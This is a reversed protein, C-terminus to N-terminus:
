EAPAPRKRRSSDYKQPNKAQPLLSTTLKNRQRPDSVSAQITSKRTKAQSLLSTTLKNRQRPDSLSAQITSKTTKAQPLWLFVEKQYIKKGGYPGGEGM